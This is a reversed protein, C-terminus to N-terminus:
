LVIAPGGVFEIVDSVNRIIRRKDDATLTEKDHPPEWACVSSSWIAMGTPVNYEAYIRMAREGERYRFGVGYGLYEVSYGADSEWYNQDTRKIM